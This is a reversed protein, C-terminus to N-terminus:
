AAAFWHSVTSKTRGTATRLRSDVTGRGAIHDLRYGKAGVLQLLSQSADQMMDTLVSKISNAEISNRSLDNELSAHESSYACMASCVTYASQMKVLRSQVQDYSTLPAGGVHRTRCHDIAEDLSDVVTTVFREQAPTIRVAWPTCSRLVSSTCRQYLLSSYM